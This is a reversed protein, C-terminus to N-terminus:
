FKMKRKKVTVATWSVRVGDGFTVYDGNSDHPQAEKEHHQGNINASLTTVEITSPASTNSFKAWLFVGGFGIGVFLFLNAARKLDKDTSMQFLTVEETPCM